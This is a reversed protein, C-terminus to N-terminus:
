GTAILMRQHVSRVRSVDDRCYGAVDDFRGQSWAEAVESGNMDGKGPLGMAKCLKDLSIFDRAGSFMIMTDNIENSWPKPDRPLWVPMRVGLVFARQWIFRIDFGAIHHGVVTVSGYTPRDSEIIKLCSGLFKAEDGNCLASQIIDDGWAWGICCISGWAGSFSTKAIAEAVVSPKTEKEWKEITEPKSMSAPPVIGSEIDAIVAADTTPLTEIDLYLYNSM